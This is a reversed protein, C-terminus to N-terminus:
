ANKRCSVGNGTRLITLDFHALESDNRNCHSGLWSNVNMKIWVEKTDAVVSMVPLRRLENQLKEVDESTIAM